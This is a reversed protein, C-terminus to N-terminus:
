EGDTACNQVLQGCGLMSNLETGFVYSKFGKESIIKHIENMRKREPSHLGKQKSPLTENLYSIKVEIDNQFQSLFTTMREIDALTDNYGSIVIYNIKVRCGLNTKKM